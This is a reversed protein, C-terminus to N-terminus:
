DGSGRDRYNAEALWTDAAARQKKIRVILAIGDQELQLRQDAVQAEDKKFHAARKAFDSARDCFAALELVLNQDGAILQEVRALLDADTRAIEAYEPHLVAHLYSPFCRSLESCAESVTRAWSEMEGSIAPTLLATELKTLDEILTAATLEANM